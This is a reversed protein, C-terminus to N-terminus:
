VLNKEDLFVGSNNSSIETDWNLAHQEWKIREESPPIMYDGFRETLFDHLGM